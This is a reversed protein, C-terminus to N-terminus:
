QAAPVHLLAADGAGQLVFGVLALIFLDRRDLRPVLCWGPPHVRHPPTYHPSTDDYESFTGGACTETLGYVPICHM